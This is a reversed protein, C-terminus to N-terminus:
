TAKSIRQPRHKQPRMHQGEQRRQHQAAVPIAALTQQKVHRQQQRGEKRDRAQKGASARGPGIIIVPDGAEVQALGSDFTQIGRQLGLSFGSFGTCCYSNHQIIEAREFALESCGSAIRDQFLGAFPQFGGEPVAIGDNPQPCGRETDDERRDPADIQLCHKLKARPQLRGDRIGIRDICCPDIGRSRDSEACQRPGGRFGARPHQIAGLNRQVRSGCVARARDAGERRFDFAACCNACFQNFLRCLRQFLALDGGPELWLHGGIGARDGPELSQRTPFMGLLADDRRRIEQGGQLVMAQHFTQALHHQILRQGGQAVPVFLPLFDRGNRDIERGM